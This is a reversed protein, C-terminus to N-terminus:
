VIVKKAVLEIRYAEVGAVYAVLVAPKMEFTYQTKLDTDDNLNNIYLLLAEFFETQEPTEMRFAAYVNVTMAAKLWKESGEQGPNILPANVFVSPFIPNWQSGEEFEGKYYGVEKVITFNSKIKEKLSNLLTHIM